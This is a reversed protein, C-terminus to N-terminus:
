LAQYAMNPLLSLYFPASDSDSQSSSHSLSLGLMFSNFPLYCGSRFALVRVTSNLPENPLDNSISTLKSQLWHIASSRFWFNEVTDSTKVTCRSFLFTTRTNKKSSAIKPGIGKHRGKHRCTSYQVGQFSLEAYGLRIKGFVPLGFWVLSLLPSTM